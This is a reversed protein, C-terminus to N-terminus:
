KYHAFWKRSTGRDVGVENALSEYSGEGREYRTVIEMKLEKSHKSKRGM